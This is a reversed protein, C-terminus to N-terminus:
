SRALAVPGRAREARPERHVDLRGARGEVLLNTRADEVRDGSMKVVIESFVPQGLADREGPPEVPGVVAVDIRGQENMMSAKACAVDGPLDGAAVALLVDEIRPVAALDLNQLEVAVVEIAVVDTEGARERAVRGM